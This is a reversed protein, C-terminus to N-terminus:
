KAYKRETKLKASLLLLDNSLSVSSCKNGVIQKKIRTIISKEKKTLLTAYQESIECLTKMIKHSLTRDCKGLETITAAYNNINRNYINKRTQFEILLEYNNYLNKLSTNESRIKKYALVIFPSAMSFVVGIGGLIPSSLFSSIKIIM